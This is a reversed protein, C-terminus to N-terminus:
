RITCKRSEWPAGLGLEFRVGVTSRTDRSTLSFSRLHRALDLLLDIEGAAEARSKNEKIM